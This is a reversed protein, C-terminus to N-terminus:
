AKACELYLDLRENLYTGIMAELKISAGITNYEELANYYANRDSFKIDIPPFGNKMLELNLLLRGTRGNGDIFPHITEFEAHLFALKKLIDLSSQNYSQLLNEMKQQILYPEAPIKLGGITVPINRYTGREIRPRDALVLYHLDKIVRESVPSNEKVLDLVYDFAEKHGIAELHYKLPKKGITVGQLVQYTEFLTLTNGEIADSNYTYEISFDELLRKLVDNRLPRLKDLARKKDLVTELLNNTIDM